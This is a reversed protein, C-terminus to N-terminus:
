NLILETSNVYIIWKNEINGPSDELLKPQPPTYWFNGRVWKKRQRTSFICHSRLQFSPGLDVVLTIKALINSFLYKSIKKQSKRVKKLFFRAFGGVGEHRPGKSM